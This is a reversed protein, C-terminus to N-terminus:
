SGSKPLSVADITGTGTIGLKRATAMTLDWDAGNAYPGRDIVPVVLTRGRYYIAVPTGCPLTRNAVGLTRHSLTQGCATSQGWFGPGYITAVSPRYATITVTPSASATHSTATAVVARLEFRGIHNVRWVARFTGDSAVQTTATVTWRNHTERGLREIEVTQGAQASTVTGTVRLQNRLIVSSRSAISMGDGTASVVTNGPQSQPGQASTGTGLGGGGSPGLGGGGSSALSAPAVSLATSVVSIVSLGFALPRRM